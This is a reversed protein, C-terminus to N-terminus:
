VLEMPRGRVGPLIKAFMDRMADCPSARSTRMAHHPYIVGFLECALNAIWWGAAASASRVAKVPRAEAKKVLSSSVARPDRVLHVLQFDQGLERV